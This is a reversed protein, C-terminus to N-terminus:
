NKYGLKGKEKEWFSNWEKDSLKRKFIKREYYERERKSSQEPTENRLKELFEMSDNHGYFNKDM